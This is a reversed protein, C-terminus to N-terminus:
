SLLFNSIPVTYLDPHARLVSLLGEGTFHRVDYQCILVCPFRKATLNLAAEFTLMETESKFQERVSTAEGVVRIMTAGKAVAEWLASEWFELAETITSGPGQSVHLLGKALAQNIDVAASRKLAEFYAKRVSGHALLFCPAGDRLGEALFPVSLRLRGVDSDYFTAVHSHENMFTAGVAVTSAAKTLVRRDAPIKPRLGRVDEVRFRRERRTGIRRGPLVGRDSWRRISAESVGLLQAAEKTSVWESRDRM